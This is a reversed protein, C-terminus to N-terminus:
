KWVSSTTISTFHQEKDATWLVIESIGVINKVPISRERNKIYVISHSVDIKRQIASLYREFHASNKLVVM